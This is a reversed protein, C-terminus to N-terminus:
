VIDMWLCLSSSYMINFIWRKLCCDSVHREIDDLRRCPLLKLPIECTHYRNRTDIYLSCVILIHRSFSIGFFCSGFDQYLFTYIYKEKWSVLWLIIWILDMSSLIRWIYPDTLSFGTFFPFFHHTLVLSIYM